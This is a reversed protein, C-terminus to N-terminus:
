FIKSALLSISSPNNVVQFRYGREKMSQYIKTERFYDWILYAGAGVVCIGAVGEITSKDEYIPTYSYDVLIDMKTPETYWGGEFDSWSDEKGAPLPNLWYVDPYCYGYAIAQGSSDYYTEYIKIDELPVNGTNKIIGHSDVYWPYGVGAREKTWSWDSTDLGPQSTEIQEFGDITLFVGLGALAIGGILKAPSQAYAGKIIGFMFLSLSIFIITKRM